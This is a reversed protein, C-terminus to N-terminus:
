WVSYKFAGSKYLADTAKIKALDKNGFKEVITNYVANYIKEIDVKRNIDYICHVSGDHGIALSMEVNTTEFATFIDAKSLRTGEAHNHLLVVNGSHGIVKEYQEKTIASKFEAEYTNNGVIQKGTKSDIVMVDEFFTGDRHELIVKSEYYASQSVNKNLPLKEFKDHYQKSNVLKRNVSYVNSNKKVTIKVDQEQKMALMYKKKFDEFSDNKDLGYFKAREKLTELEEEDLAWRARQLLACRCRIVESAKGNPDGPHMLGNSFPEDLERIEGDVKRHSPRTDGDMTSDWQKLVDAGKEKARYNADMASQIQIRHGETIVITEARYLAGGSKKDYIGTMKAKIQLTTQSFSAGTSIGRSVESAINKKLLDVDEGLRKYLGEKIKSDLQVARVVAQQDMPFILPIGQGHLDYMTGLFGEEYCKNLYESVTKFEEVQMNDLISGIQKKLADQYQKQYVKSQIMSQLNKQAEEDMSGQLTAMTLSNISNQLEESKKTIDKLAQSYVSKLRRIVVEENNLFAEQVIKQRKNM